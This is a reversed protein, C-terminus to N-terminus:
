SRRRAPINRAPIGKGIFSEIDKCADLQRSSSKDGVKIQRELREIRRDVTELDALLLETNVIEIDREPDVDGGMHVVDSNEFCRVVHVLADVDRIHGLFKNGLGEGQEGRCGFWRYRRIGYFYIDESPTSHDEYIKKPLKPDPVRM